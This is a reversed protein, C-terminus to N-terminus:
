EFLEAQPNNSQKQEWEMEISKNYDTLKNGLAKWGMVEVVKVIKVKAKKIQTGRGSQMALVPEDETTVAELYNGEGEKIFFFKNHLTSTEIKFRKVSYQLKEKDFYVATVIKEADFKEILM